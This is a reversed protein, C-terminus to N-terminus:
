SATRSLSFVIGTTHIAAYFLVLTFILHINFLLIALIHRCTKLNRERSLFGSPLVASTPTWQLWTSLFLLVAASCTSHWECSSLGLALLMLSFLANWLLCHRWWSETCPPCSTSLFIVWRHTLLFFFFNMCYVTVFLGAYVSYAKITKLEV